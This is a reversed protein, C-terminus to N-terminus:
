AGAARRLEELLAGLDLGRLDEPVAGNLNEPLLGELDEPLVGDLDQPDLGEPLLGELDEPLLDGLDGPALGDLDEGLGRLADLAEQGLDSITLGSEGLATILEALTPEGPLSQFLGIAVSVPARQAIARGVTALPGPLLGKVEADDVARVLGARVADEVRAEDVQQEEAFEALAQEDALAAILQERTVQLECAAGDLASLAIGEFIGREALVELPREECPDAVTLPKYSAGGALLYAVIVGLSAGVAIFIPLSRRTV